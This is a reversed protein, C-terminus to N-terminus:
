HVELYKSVLWVKLNIISVNVRIIQKVQTKINKHLM